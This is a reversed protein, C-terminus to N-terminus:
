FGGFQGSLGFIAQASSVTGTAPFNTFAGGLNMHRNDYGVQNYRGEVFFGLVRTFRYTGGAVAQWGFTQETENNLGNTVSTRAILLGAGVYPDFTFCTCRLLPTISLLDQTLTSGPNTGSSGGVTHTGQKIHNNVHQYGMRLGLGSAWWYAIDGGFTPGNKLSVGGIEDGVVGGGRLGMIEAWSWGAFVRAEWTPGTVGNKQMWAPFLRNVTAKSMLSSSSKMTPDGHQTMTKTDLPVEGNLRQNRIDFFTGNASLVEVDYTKDTDLEFYAALKHDNDETAEVTKHYSGDTSRVTVSGRPGANAVSVKVTKTAVAHADLALLGVFCGAFLLALLGRVRM